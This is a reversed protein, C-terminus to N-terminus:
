EHYEISKSSILSLNSDFSLDDSDSSMNTKLVPFGRQEELYLLRTLDNENPRRLYEDGLFSIVGQVFSMLSKRTVAGSMKLYEDTADPRQQFYRDNATVADVIRLFLHKRMRFRVKSVNGIMICEDQELLNTKYTWILITSLLMKLSTILANIIDFLVHNENM